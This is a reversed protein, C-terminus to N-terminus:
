TKSKIELIPIRSYHANNVFDIVIKWRDRSGTVYDTFSEIRHQEETVDSIRM